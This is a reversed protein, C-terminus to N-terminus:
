VESVDPESAVTSSVNNIGAVVVMLESVLVVTSVNAMVRSMLAVSVVAVTDSVPISIEVSM